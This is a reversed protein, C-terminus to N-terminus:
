DCVRTIRRALTIRPLTVNCGILTEAFVLLLLEIEIDCGAINRRFAMNAM